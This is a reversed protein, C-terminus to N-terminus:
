KKFGTTDAKAGQRSNQLYSDLIDGWRKLVIEADPRNTVGDCRSVPKPGEPSVAPAEAAAAHSPGFALAGLAL